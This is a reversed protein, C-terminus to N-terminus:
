CTKKDGYKAETSKETKGGCTAYISHEEMSKVNAFVTNAGLTLTGLLIVPKKM